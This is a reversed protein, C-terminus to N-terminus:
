AVGERFALLAEPRIIGGVAPAGRPGHLARTLADYRGGSAIAPLDPRGTAFAGFVFGDYYELTTRGFEAEFTLTDVEVGRARLAELRRRFQAVAEQLAPVRNALEELRSAVEACPGRVEFLSSLSAVEAPDLPPTRAELALRDVRAEIEEISRQGIVPGAASILAPLSSDSAADILSARRLTIAAHDLGYRRVLARFREPRWVHRRLAAKRAVSTALGDIAALILGMDGIVFDVPAGDLAAAVLAFVEADAAEADFAGFVEIGAQLYERPRGSGDQRRWVPGCYVYRAEGEESSQHLNAIPVTFDPRLMLESRDDRTVFARARIDEGYLDLLLEAPQLCEPEVRVAGTGSLVDLIRSLGADLRDLGPGVRAGRLYARDSAM